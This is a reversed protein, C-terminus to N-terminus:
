AVSSLTPTPMSNAGGLIKVENYDDAWQASSLSPPPEPPLYQDPSDMTFPRMQGVWPTQPALFGPPTPIWVGAAAASPYIYPLDAGRGDGSRLNIIANAAAQGASVGNDKAAGDPIAALAAQYQRMLSAAQDPHYNTLTYYAAAIAAAEPSASSSM